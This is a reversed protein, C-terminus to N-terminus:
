GRQPRRGRPRPLRRGRASSRRCSSAPRHAPGHSARGVVRILERHEVLLAADMGIGFRQRYAAVIQHLGVMRDLREAPGGAGLRKRYAQDDEGGVLEIRYPTGPAEGLALPRHRQECVGDGGALPGCLDHSRNRFCSLARDRDLRIAALGVLDRRQQESLEVPERAFRPRRGFALHARLAEGADAGAAPCAGDDDGARDAVSAPHRDPLDRRGPPPDPLPIGDRRQGHELLLRGSPLFGLYILPGARAFIEGRRRVLADVLLVLVVLTVLAGIAGLRQSASDLQWVYPRFTVDWIRIPLNTIIAERTSFDVRELSLNADDAANANQSQQVNEELNENSSAELVTPATIAVLLVVGAILGLSRIENQRTTRLGAHLAIAAAAAILFWGAYPRTAVAVLCGAVMIPVSALDGRKWLRAGGFAVLGEAVFMSSEKHLLSSFFVGSPELALFWAAVVAARAGALEYVATALLVLGVVALGIEGIRLVFEPSDIAWVQIALVFEHLKSVLASTWDGTGLPTGAIRRADSLFLVEDGGRLQSGISTLSVGAAAALRLALALAVPIGIALGPRSRALLRVLLYLGYAVVLLTLM